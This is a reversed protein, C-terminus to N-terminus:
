YTHCMFLDLLNPQQIVPFQAPELYCTAHFRVKCHKTLALSLLRNDNKTVFYLQQQTIEILLVRKQVNALRDAQNVESHVPM